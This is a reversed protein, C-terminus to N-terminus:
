AKFRVSKKATPTTKIYNIYFAEQMEKADDDSMKELADYHLESNRSGELPFIRQLSCREVRNKKDFGLKQQWKGEYTYNDGPKVQMNENQKKTNAYRVECMRQAGDKSDFIKTVLALPYDKKKDPSPMKILVVDNEKLGQRFDHWKVRRSIYDLYNNLWVQKFQLYIEKRERWKQAM